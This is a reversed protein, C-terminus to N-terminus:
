GATGMGEIFEDAEAISAEMDRILAGVDTEIGELQGQLASIASANLRHKLFTVKELFSDLVPQMRAEASRMAKLLSDTRQRADALMAEDAARLEPDKIVDLEGEWENLLDRSVKDISEIRDRVEEVREVSEQYEDDLREYLEEVEGGDFDAISRFADLATQFQEKAEQQAERGDQVRDVLLERKHVGFAEMTSYYASSCAVLPLAALGVLILRPFTNM